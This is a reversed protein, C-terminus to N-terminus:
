CRLQRRIYKPCRASTQFKLFQIRKFFDGFFGLTCFYGGQKTLQAIHVSKTTLWIKHNQLPLVFIIKKQNLFNEVSEFSMNSTQLTNELHLAIWHKEIWPSVVICTSKCDFISMPTSINVTTSKKVHADRIWPFCFYNM